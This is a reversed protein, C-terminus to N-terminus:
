SMGGVERILSSHPCEGYFGKAMNCNHCLVQFDTPYGSNIIWSILASAGVKLSKRHQYGGGNIHDIALFEYRAEGCCSCKGGYHLLVKVRRTHFYSLCKEKNTRYYEKSAAKLVDRHKERYRKNCESRKQATNYSM